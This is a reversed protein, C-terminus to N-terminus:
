RSLDAPDDNPVDPKTPDLCYVLRFFCKVVYAVIRVVLTFQLYIFDYSAVFQISCFMVMKLKRM